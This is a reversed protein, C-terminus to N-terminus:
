AQSASDRYSVFVVRSGRIPCEAACSIQPWSFHLDSVFHEEHITGQISVTLIAPPDPLLHLLAASSSSIWTGDNVYSSNRSASRLKLNRTSPIPSVRPSRFFRSVETEWLYSGLVEAQIGGTIATVTLDGALAMARDITLLAFVPPAM